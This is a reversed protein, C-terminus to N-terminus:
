WSQFKKAIRRLMGFKFQEPKSFLSLQSERLKMLAAVLSEQGSAALEARVNTELDWYRPFTVWASGGGSIQHSPRDWNLVELAIFFARGAEDLKWPKPFGAYHLIKESGSLPESIIHNFGVDLFSVRDTLLYNLIDQDHYQFGLEKERRVLDMWLSDLHAAKWRDPRLLLIGANFYRGGCRNFAQNKGDIKMRALTMGRDFVGGAIIAPDEFLRDGNTFIDDWGPLLLTDADLWMFPEDLSDLLALRAYVTANWQHDNLEPVNVELDVVEGDVSLWKLCQAVVDKGEPSLLGNVNAILFRLPQQSGHVASWLSCLWPWIYRDDFSTAVLRASARSSEM